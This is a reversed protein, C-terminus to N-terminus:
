PDRRTARDFLEVLEQAYAAFDLAPDAAAMLMARVALAQGADWRAVPDDDHAILFALAAGDLDTSLRAPASFGRLLSPVPRATPGTTSSRSRM